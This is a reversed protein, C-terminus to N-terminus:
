TDWQFHCFSPSNAKSRIVTWLSTAFTINKCTDTQGCPPTGPCSGWLSWTGGPGPVGGPFCVCEGQVLYVGRSDCGGPFCGRPLLGGGSACGGRSVASVAPLVRGAPISEQQTKNHSGCSMFSIFRCSKVFKYRQSSYIYKRHIGM